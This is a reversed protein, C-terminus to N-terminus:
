RGGIIIEQPETDILEKFVPFRPVGKGPTIHQYQVHCLKGILNEKTSWLRQRDDASLGSGVSFEEYGDSSCILAGLREKPVGDKSVEEKYGTIKYHDSKKPKFKMVYISRRRIYSADIHRVIMGEYDAELYGDYIRMVDELSFAVTTEVFVLPGRRDPKFIRDVQSESNVRDFIHYQMLSHDPHLNVTRSCISIIQEFTMGHKYLEGDLEQPWLNSRSLAHNIHPVSVFQNLESSLLKYGGHETPIARCREGDLKPQVLYPPKWKALRKEEFPYCLMIGQRKSM